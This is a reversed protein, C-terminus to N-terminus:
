VGAHRASRAISTPKIRARLVRRSSNAAHDFIRLMEHPRRLATVGERHGLQEVLERRVDAPDARRDGQVVARVGGLFRQDRDESRQPRELVWGGEEAPDPRDRDPLRDPHGPLILPLDDRIQGPQRSAVVWLQRDVDPVRSSCASSRTRM